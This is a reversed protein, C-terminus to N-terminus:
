GSKKGQKKKGKAKRDPQNLTSNGDPAKRAQKNILDFMEARKVDDLSHGYVLSQFFLELPAEM